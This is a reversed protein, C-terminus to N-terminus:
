KGIQILSARYQKANIEAQLYTSTAQALQEMQKPLSPGAPLAGGSGAALAPPVWSPMIPNGAEYYMTKLVPLHGTAEYWRPQNLASTMESIWKGAAEPHDTQSSVVYSRGSIWTTRMNPKIDPLWISVSAPAAMQKSIESAPALIMPLEGTLLPQWADAGFSQEGNLDVMSPRLLELQQVLLPVKEEAIFPFTTYESAVGGGLQWLLTMAAYPDHYDLGLLPKDPSQKQYATILTTWEAESSPVQELGFPKLQAVDYVFVYPDIDLPVGWVYGNWENPLLSLGLVEGSLSGAYYGETPLLYGDAAFRRVSTNNMLLVDPSEGLKMLRRQYTEYTETSPVNILEVEVTYTDMFQRNIEDLRRFDSEDMQVAVRIRGTEEQIQQEQPRVPQSEGRDESRILTTEESPSLSILALLLVAFLLGHNKRKVGTRGRRLTPAHALKNDSVGCQLM